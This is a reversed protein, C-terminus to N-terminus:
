HHTRTMSGPLMYQFFHSHVLGVGGYVSCLMLTRQLFRTCIFTLINGYPLLFLCVTIGIRNLVPKAVHLWLDSLIRSFETDPDSTGHDSPRLATLRPAISRGGSELLTRLTKSLRQVVKGTITSLLIHLVSTDPMLVLAHCKRNNGNLIIVPGNCAAKNLESLTKPLMFRDFGDMSRIKKLIEQREYALDHARWQKSGFSNSRGTTGVDELLKSIHSLSEALTPYAEYLDDTPMRLQLLQGWIISRGQELWEVATESQGAQSAAIAAASVFGGVQGIRTQRDAISLGLWAMQPLLELGKTYSDQIFSSSPASALSLLGKAEDMLASVRCAEFRQTILGTTSNAAASFLSYAREFDNSDRCRRFRDYLLKGLTYLIGVQIPQHHGDTSTSLRLADETLSLARDFDAFCNLQKFRTQLFTALNNQYSPKDPHSDPTHQLATECLTISKNIDAPDGSWKFRSWLSTGLNMLRAPQDPHGDDTLQLAEELHCIALNVHQPDRSGEKRGHNFRNQLMVSLDNLYSPRDLHTPPTLRVAINYAEIGMDLDRVDGFEQFRTQLANGFTVVRTVKSSHDNPTLEVSKECISVAKILDAVHGQRRFRDILSNGLDYLYAAKMPDDAQTSNVADECIYVVRNLDDNTPFADNRKLFVQYLAELLPSKHINTNPLLLM